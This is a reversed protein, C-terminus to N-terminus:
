STMFSYLIQLNTVPKLFFSRDQDRRGQTMMDSHIAVSNSKSILWNADDVPKSFRSLSPGITPWQIWTCFHQGSAWMITSTALLVVAVVWLVPELNSHWNCFSVDKRHAGSKRSLWFLRRDKSPLRSLSLASESKLIVLNQMGFPGQMEDMTPLGCHPGTFYLHM